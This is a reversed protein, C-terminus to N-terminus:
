MYITSLSFSPLMTRRMHIKMMQSLHPPSNKMWQHHAVGYFSDCIDNM